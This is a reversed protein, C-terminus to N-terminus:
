IRVSIAKIKSPLLNKTDDITSRPPPSSTGAELEDESENSSDRLKRNQRGFDIFIKM